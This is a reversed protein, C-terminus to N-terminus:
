FERLMKCNRYLLFSSFRISFWVGEVRTKSIWISVELRLVRLVIGLVRLSITREHIRRRIQVRVQVRQRCSFPDREHHKQM